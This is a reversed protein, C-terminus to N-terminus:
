HTNNDKLLAATQGRDYMQAAGTFASVQTEAKGPFFEVKLKQKDVLQILLTGEPTGPHMTINTAFESGNWSGSSSKYERQTLQYKVLGSNQSVDKFDTPSGAVAFQTAAGNYDGTSITLAKTDVNDYALTLHGRYGNEDHPNTTSGAYGNTGARFWTGVAKGDIDYAFRGDKPNQSGVYKPAIQAKVSDAFYDLPPVTNVKWPERNNYAIPYLLDKTTKTTDWVAFDLSQGGVTGIVDGATVAINVGGPNDSSWGSPLQNKLTFDTMLDYYSFFTCSYSVVVRWREERSSDDGHHEVGVIHGDAPAYVKYTDKAAMINKQYYYEHDVPTVHSAQMLGYPVIANIDAINMPAHVLQKSGEGSCQGNALLRGKTVPDSSNASDSTAKNDHNTSGRPGLVRYAVFGILGLIVVVIIIEIVTFGYQRKRM